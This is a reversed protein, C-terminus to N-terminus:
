PEVDGRALAGALDGVIHGGDRLKSVPHVTTPEFHSRRHLLFTNEDSFCRIGELNHSTGIFQGGNQFGKRLALVFHQVESPALYNDPEDWFCLLPGYQENAALVLACIMFCKEGDSLSEFPLSLSGARNSFEVSLSRADKGILPNKIEKLDPLLQKLYGFMRSYASPASALLGSFWEAFNHGDPMPRLTEKKSEGSILSPVPQLIVMRVLWQLFVWSPEKKSRQHVIPLAVLESDIPFIAEKAEGNTALHVQDLKRTYISKGDFELKEERVRLEEGGPPIQFALVYTYIGNELEVEIEFRMPVDTRGHALEQPRVVDAVYNKGRAIRQLIRLAFGITTKGSGNAGILLASSLGAVPLEFNELCRFNHVYFRKIVAPHYM